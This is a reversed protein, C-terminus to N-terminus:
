FLSAALIKSSAAVGDAAAPAAAADHCTGSAWAESAQTCQMATAPQSFPVINWIIDDASCGVCM